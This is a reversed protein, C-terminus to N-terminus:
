LLLNTCYYDLLQQLVTSSNSKNRAINQTATWVDCVFVFEKQDDRPFSVPNYVVTNMATSTMTQISSQISNVCRNHVKEHINIKSSKLLSVTPAVGFLFQWLVNIDVVVRLLVLLINGVM